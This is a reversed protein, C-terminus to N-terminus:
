RHVEIAEALERVAGALGNIAEAIVEAAMVPGESLTPVDGRPAVRDAILELGQYVAKAIDDM